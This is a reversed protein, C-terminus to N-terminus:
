AEPDTEMAAISAPAFIGAVVALAVAALPLAVWPTERFSWAVGLWILQTMVIPSRAWSALRLLGYGCAALAVAYGLFFLATTLGMTARGGTLHALELVAYVLLGLAQLWVLVAAVALPLPRRAASYLAM